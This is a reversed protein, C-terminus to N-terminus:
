SSPASLPSYLTSVPKGGLDTDDVGSSFAPPARRNDHCQHAVEHKDDPDFVGDPSRAALSLNHLIGAREPAGDVSERREHDDVEGGAIAPLLGHAAGLVERVSSGDGDDGIAAVDVSLRELAGPCRAAIM